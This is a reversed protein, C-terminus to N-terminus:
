LAAALRDVRSRLAGNPYRLRYADIRRQALTANSARVYAEIILVDREEALAAAPFQRAHSMLDVLADDTLGRQIAARARDLLLREASHDAKVPSRNKSPTPATVSPVVAPAPAAPRTINAVAVMLPPVPTLATEHSTVRGVVFGGGVLAVSATAAMWWRVARPAASASREGITAWVAAVVAASSAAARRRSQRQEIATDGERLQERLQERARRLRDKATDFPIALAAATERLTHDELEHLTIVDRLPEPLEALARRVALVTAVDDESSTEPAEVLTERQRASKKHDRGLNRAIGYVWASLSVDAPPQASSLARLLAEQALDRADADRLGARLGARCAAEAADQLTHQDPTV